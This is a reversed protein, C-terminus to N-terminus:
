EKGEESAPASGKDGLLIDLLGRIRDPDMGARRATDVAEGLLSQVRNELHQRMVQDGSDAVFTGKGQINEVLGEQALETYARTVTLVSVRLERSLHRLSPLGEGAKLDGTLIASRIQDEIQRYIPQGSLSSIILKM